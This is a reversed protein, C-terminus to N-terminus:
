EDIHPLNFLDSIDNAISYGDCEIGDESMSSVALVNLVISSDHCKKIIDRVSLLIDDKHKLKEEHIHEYLLQEVKRKAERISKIPFSEKVLEGFGVFNRICPIYESKSNLVVRCRYNVGGITAISEIFGDNEIWKSFTINKM